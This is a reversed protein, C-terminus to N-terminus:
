LFINLMFILNYIDPWQDWSSLQSKYWIPLLDCSDLQLISDFFQSYCDYINTTM